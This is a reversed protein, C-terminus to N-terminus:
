GKVEPVFLGAPKNLIPVHDDEYLVSLSTKPLTEYEASAKRKERSNILREDALFIKM